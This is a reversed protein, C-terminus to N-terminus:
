RADRRAEPQPRALERRAADVVRRVAEDMPVTLTCGAAPVHGGGGFEEAVRAVNVAGGSRLSVRIEGRREERFFIAVEGGEVMRIQDVFGETAQSDTGAAQFDAQTIAAWVIKGDEARELSSLLRGLLVTASYPRTGYVADYIVAPRAGAEVLLAAAQFTAATVNSFRFSGTDTLIAAMLCCAIEPSITVGLEQLLNLVLEGTAAATRDVLQVQGFPDPGTHHDIDIVV